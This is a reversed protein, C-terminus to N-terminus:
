PDYWFTDENINYVAASDPGRITRFYFLAQDEGQLEYYIKKYPDERGDNMLEEPIEQIYGPVLDELATPFTGNDQRYQIFVPRLTQMIVKRKATLEYLGRNAVNAPIALSFILLASVGMIILNYKIEERKIMRITALIFSAFFFIVAAFCALMTGFMDLKLAAGWVGALFVASTIAFNRYKIM